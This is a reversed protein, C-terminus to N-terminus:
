LYIKCNCTDIYETHAVFVFHMPQFLLRIDSLAKFISGVLKTNDKHQSSMEKRRQNQNSSVINGQNKMWRNWSLDDFLTQFTKM